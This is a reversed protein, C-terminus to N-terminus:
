RNESLPAHALLLQYPGIKILSGVSLEVYKHPQIRRGNVFTGNTSSTDVLSYSKQLFYIRAHFNSVTLHPLQLDCEDNRGIIFTVKEELSVILTGDIGHGVIELQYPLLLSGRALLADEKKPKILVTEFPLLKSKWAPSRIKQITNPFFISLKRQYEYNTHGDIVEYGKLLSPLRDANDVILIKPIQYSFHHELALTMGITIFSTPPTDPTLRYISFPATRVQQCHTCALFQFGDRQPLDDLYVHSVDAYRDLEDEILIRFDERDTEEGDAIHCILDDQQWREQRPHRERWECTRNGFHCFRNRWAKQPDASIWERLRQPLVRKFTPVGTFELIDLGQLISPLPINAKANNANRLLLMPRNLAIAMGMEILVNRPMQWEGNSDQWYSLDYIGYRSNAILELTKERLSVDPNFHKRAYDAELDFEPLDLIEECAKLLGASWTAGESYAIFCKQRDYQKYLPPNSM